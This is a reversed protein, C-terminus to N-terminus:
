IMPNIVKQREKLFASPFSFPRCIFSTPGEISEFISPDSSHIIPLIPTPNQTHPPRSSPRGSGALIHRLFLRM